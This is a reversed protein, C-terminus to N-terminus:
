PDVKFILSISFTIMDTETLYALLSFPCIVFLPFSVPCSQTIVCEVCCPVVLCLSQKKLKHAQCEQSQKAQVLYLPLSQM